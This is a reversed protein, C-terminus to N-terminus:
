EQDLGSYNCTQIEVHGAVEQNNPERSMQKSFGKEDGGDVHTWWELAWDSTQKNKEM